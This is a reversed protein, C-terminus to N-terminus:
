PAILAAVQATDTYQTFSRCRGDQLSLFESTETELIKGSPRHRVKLRHRTAVDNGRVITEVPQWELFEFLEILNALAARIADKGRAEAGVGVVRFVADDAFFRATGEVDGAVRAVRMAELLREADGAELM